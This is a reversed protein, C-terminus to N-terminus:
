NKYTCKKFYPKKIVKKKLRREKFRSEDFQNLENKYLIQNEKRNKKCFWKIEKLAQSINFFM